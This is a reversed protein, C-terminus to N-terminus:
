FFAIWQNIMYHYQTMLFTWMVDNLLRSVISAIRHNQITSSTWTIQEEMRRKCWVDLRCGVRRFNRNSHWFNGLVQCKFLIQWFNDNLFFIGNAIKKQFFTLNKAIKQCDFTLKGSPWSWVKSYIYFSPTHRWKQSASQIM